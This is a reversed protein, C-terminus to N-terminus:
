HTFAAEVRARVVLEAVTLSVPGQPSGLGPVPPVTQDLSVSASHLTRIKVGGATGVATARERASEMAKEIAGRKAPEPDSLTYVVQRVTTAGGQVLTDIIHQVRSPSRVIVLIESIAKFGVIKRAGMYDTGVVPEMNVRGAKIDESSLGLQKAALDNLKAVLAVNSAEVETASAGETQVGLSIYAIDPKVRVEGEGTVTILRTTQTGLDLTPASPAPRATVMLIVALALLGGAILAFNQPKM